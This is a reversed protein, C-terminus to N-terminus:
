LYPENFDGAEGMVSLDHFRIDSSEGLDHCTMMKMMLGMIKQFQKIESGL